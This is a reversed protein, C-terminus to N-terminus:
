AAKGRLASWDPQRSPKRAPEVQAYRARPVLPMGDGNPEFPIGMEALKRCQATWRKRGTLARVDDPDLWLDSM